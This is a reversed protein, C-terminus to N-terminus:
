GREAIDAARLLVRRVQMTNWPKGRRTTHGEVNLIGVIERLSLGMGRLETVLPYLDAYAADAAEQRAKLSKELAQASAEASRGFGRRVSGEKLGEREM